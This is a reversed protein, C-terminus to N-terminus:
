SFSGGGLNSRRGVWVGFSRTDSEMSEFASQCSGFKKELFRKFRFRIFSAPLCRFWEWVNPGWILTTFVVIHPRVSPLCTEARWTDLLLIYWTLINYISSHHLFSLRKLDDHPFIPTSTHHINITYYTLKGARHSNNKLLVNSCM